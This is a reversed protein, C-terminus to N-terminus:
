MEVQKVAELPYKDGNLWDQIIWYTRNSLFETAKMNRLETKTFWRLETIHESRLLQDAEEALSPAGSVIEAIFTFQARLENEKQAVYCGLLNTIKVEVGAEERAERMAAEFITEPGSDGYSGKIINWLLIPSKRNKEKIMLVRGGSDIIIVGVKIKSLM